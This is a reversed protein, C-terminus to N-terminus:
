KKRRIITLHAGQGGTVQVETGKPLYGEQSLAQLRQGGIGIYGAPRMDCEAIGVQGILDPFACASFGTQDDTHFIRKSRRIKWLGLQCVLLIGLATGLLYAINWIWGKGQLIFFTLGLLSLIAGIVAAIIGPVFFECFICILGLFSLSFATVM